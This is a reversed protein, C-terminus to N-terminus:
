RHEDTTGVDTNMHPRLVKLTFCAVEPRCRFRVPVRFGVGRSVYMRTQAIQFLGLDFQKHVVPLVLPGALPVRIQGGHTHGALVWQVAYRSLAYVTDPNHSLAIVPENQNVGALAKEPSFKGSWLDELGVIWLRGDARDITMAQNRLVPIGKKTLEADLEDAIEHGEWIQFEKTYDHNGFTVVVNGRLAAVIECAEKVYPKTHTVLDGTVAILDAKMENIRQVIRRLFSVPTRFGTHLDTFQIIRFGDLSPPLGRLPMDIQPYEVEFPAKRWAYGGTALTMGAAGVAKFIGGIFDRIRTRKPPRLLLNPDDSNM